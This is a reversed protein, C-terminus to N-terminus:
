WSTESAFRRLPRALRRAAPTRGPQIIKSSPQCRVAASGPAFRSRAERSGSSSFNGPPKASATRMALSPNPRWSNQTQCAAKPRGKPRCGSSPAIRGKWGRRRSGTGSGPMGRELMGHHSASWAESGAVASSSRASRAAICSRMRSAPASPTFISKWATKENWSVFPRPRAAAPRASASARSVVAEFRKPVARMEQM